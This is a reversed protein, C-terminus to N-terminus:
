GGGGRGDEATEGTQLREQPEHRQPSPKPSDAAEVLAEPGRAPTRALWVAAPREGRRTPRQQGSDDILGLKRLESRRPSVSQAQIRTAEETEAGSACHAGTRVIVALVEAGQRAARGGIQRAATGSTWAPANHWASPILPSRTSNPSNNPHIVGAGGALPAADNGPPDPPQAFLTASSEPARHIM